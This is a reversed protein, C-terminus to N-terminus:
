KVLVMRKTESFTETTLRYFYVGSEFESGDFTYEYQGPGLDQNVLQATQKGAIDYVALKVFSARPIEFKLKTSPNFPNPYNQFLAFKEPIESNIMNIGSTVGRIIRLTNPSTLESIFLTDGTVSATIGNPGSFQATLASGDMHGVVGSGAFIEYNGDLDVRFVYPSGSNGTVYLYGHSYELHGVHFPHLNGPAPLQCLLTMVGGPTIKFLKANAINPAYINGNEDIALSVPAVLGNGQVFINSQGTSDVVYISNGNGPFGAGYHSVYINGISRNLVVGSPGDSVTAFRTAVGQPTVKYLGLNNFTSVYLNGANDFDIDIPRALGTDFTNRTGDLQIMYIRNGDFGETGYLIGDNGLTLCDMSYNGDLQITEVVVGQAFVIRCVSFLFFVLFTSVIYSKM